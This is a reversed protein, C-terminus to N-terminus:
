TLGTPMKGMRTHHSWEFSMSKTCSASLLNRQLATANPNVPAITTGFLFFCALAEAILRAFPMILGAHTQAAAAAAAPASASSFCCAAHQLCHGSYICSCGRLQKLWWRQRQKGM